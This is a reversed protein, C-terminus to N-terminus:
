LKGWEEATLGTTRAPDVIKARVAERQQQAQTPQAADHAAAVHANADAKAANLAATQRTLAADLTRVNDVFARIYAPADVPKSKGNIGRDVEATVAAILAGRGESVKKWHRADGREILAFILAAGLPVIWWIKAWPLGVVFSVAASALKAAAAAAGPIFAIVAGIGGLGLVPLAIGLISM